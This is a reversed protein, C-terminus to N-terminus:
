DLESHRQTHLGHHFFARVLADVRCFCTPDDLIRDDLVAKIEHLLAIADSDAQRALRHMDYDKVYKVVEWGIARAYLEESIPTDDYGYESM